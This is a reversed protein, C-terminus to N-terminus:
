AARAICPASRWSAKGALKRGLKLLFEDWQAQFAPDTAAEGTVGETITSFAIPFAALAIMALQLFRPEVDRTLRGHSQALSIAANNRRYHDRSNHVLYGGVEMGSAAEWTMLRVWAADALMAQFQHAFADTHVELPADSAAATTIKQPMFSIAEEFLHQKGRFYHYLLEKSVGTAIAIKQKRAGAYGKASFEAKAAELIAARTRTANRVRGSRGQMDQSGM